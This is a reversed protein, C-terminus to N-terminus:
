LVERKLAEIEETALRLLDHDAYRAMAERGALAYATYVLDEPTVSGDLMAEVTYQDMADFLGDIPEYPPDQSSIEPNTM